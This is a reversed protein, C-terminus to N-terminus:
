RTCRRHARLDHQRKLRLRNASCLGCRLKLGTGVVRCVCDLGRRLLRRSCRIVRFRRPLQVQILVLTSSGGFERIITPLMNFRPFRVTVHLSSDEPTGSTFRERLTM